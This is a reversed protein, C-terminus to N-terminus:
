EQKIKKDDDEQKRGFILRRASGLNIGVFAILNACILENTFSGFVHPLILEFFVIMVIVFYVYRWTYKFLHFMCWLVYYAVLFAIGLAFSIVIFTVIQYNMHREDQDNDSYSEKLKEYAKQVQIFELKTEFNKDPHLRKVLNNYSDKIERFTAWPAVKLVRYPNTFGNKLDDLSIQLTITLLLCTVILAKVKM